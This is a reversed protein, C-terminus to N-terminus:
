FRDGRQLPLCIELSPLGMVFTNLHLQFFQSPNITIENKFFVRQDGHNRLFYELAKLNLTFLKYDSSWEVSKM